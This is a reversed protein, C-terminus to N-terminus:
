VDETCSLKDEVLMSLARVATLLVRALRTVEEVLTSPAKAAIPPVIPVSWPLEILREWDEELISAATATPPPAIAPWCAEDVLRTAEDVLM